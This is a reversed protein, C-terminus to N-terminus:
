RVLVSLRCSIGNRVAVWRVNKSSLITAAETYRKSEIKSVKLKARYFHCLWILDISLTSLQISYLCPISNFPTHCPAPTSHLISVSNFPIYVLYQTSRLISVTSLQVSYPCPVSNVPTHVRYQTSRLISLTSLQVSYPCPVSNFPCPVSNFPVYVLHRLHNPLATYQNSKQSYLYPTSLNPYEESKLTDATPLKGALFLQVPQVQLTQTLAHM